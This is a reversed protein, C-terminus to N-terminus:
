LRVLLKSVFLISVKANAFSKECNLGTKFACKNMNM